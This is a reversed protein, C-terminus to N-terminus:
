ATHKAGRINRVLFDVSEVRLTLLVLFRSYLRQRNITTSIGHADRLYTRVHM